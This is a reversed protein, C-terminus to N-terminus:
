QGCHNTVGWEGIRATSIEFGHLKHSHFRPSVGDDDEDEERRGEEEEEEDEM